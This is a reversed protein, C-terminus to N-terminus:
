LIGAWELAPANINGLFIIGLFLGVMLSPGFPFTKSKPNKFKILMRVPIQILSGIIIGALISTFGFWGALISFALLLRLDGSGLGGKSIFATLIFAFGVILFAVVASAIRAPSYDIIIATFNVAAVTWCAEKPIKKSTIDTAITILCLWVSAAISVSLPVNGFVYISSIGVGLSFLTRFVTSFVDTKAGLIKRESWRKHWVKQFLVELLLVTIAIFVTGLLLVNM